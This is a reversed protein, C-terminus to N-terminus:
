WDVSANFEKNARRIESSVIRRMARLNSNLDKTSLNLAASVENKKATVRNSTGKYGDREFVKVSNNTINQVSTDWISKQVDNFKKYAKKFAVKLVNSEM